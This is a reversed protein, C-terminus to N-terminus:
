IDYLTITPTRIWPDEVPKTNVYGPERSNNHTYSIKKPIKSKLREMADEFADERSFKEEMLIKLWSMNNGTEHGTVKIIKILRELVEDPIGHVFNPSIIFNDFKYYNSDKKYKASVVFKGLMEWLEPFGIIKPNIIYFNDLSKLEDLDLKQNTTGGTEQNYPRM